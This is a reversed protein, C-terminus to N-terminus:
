RITVELTYRATVDTGISIQYEGDEPLEGAWDWAGDSLRDTPAYVTFSTKKGAVLHVSMRQGRRARLYHDHSTCLKIRDRVVTTTRGRGFRLEKRVPVDTGQCQGAAVFSFSEASVPPVPVCAFALSLIFARTIKM